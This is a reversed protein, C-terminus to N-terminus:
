KKPLLQKIGIITSNKITFIQISNKRITPNMWLYIVGPSGLFLNSYFVNIKLKLWSYMDM